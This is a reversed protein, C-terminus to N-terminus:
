LKDLDRFFVDPAGFEMEQQLAEMGQPDLQDMNLWEELLNASPPVESYIVVFILLLLLQCCCVIVVSLLM